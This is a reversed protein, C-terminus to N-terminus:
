AFHRTDSVESKRNRLYEKFKNRRMAARAWNGFLVRRKNEHAQASKWKGYPTVGKNAVRVFVAPTYPTEEWNPVRGFVFPSRLPVIYPARCNSSAHHEAMIGSRIRM